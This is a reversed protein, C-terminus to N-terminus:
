INGKGGNRAWSANSNLAPVDSRCQKPRVINIQIFIMMMVVVVMMMTLMRMAAVAMLIQMYVFRDTHEVQVQM